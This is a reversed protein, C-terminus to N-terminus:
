LNLRAKVAAAVAVALPIPVGIWRGDDAALACLAAVVVAVAILAPGSTRSKM